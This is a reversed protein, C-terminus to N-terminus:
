TKEGSLMMQLGTVAKLACMRSCCNKKFTFTQKGIGVSKDWNFNLDINEKEWDFEKGCVECIM